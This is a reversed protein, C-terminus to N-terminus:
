LTKLGKPIYQRDLINTTIILSLIHPFNNYENM